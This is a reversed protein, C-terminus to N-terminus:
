DGHRAEHPFRLYQGPPLRSAVDGGPGVNERRGVFGRAVFLESM